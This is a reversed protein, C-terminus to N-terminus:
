ERQGTRLMYSLAATTHTDSSTPPPCTHHPAPFPHPRCSGRALCTDIKLMHLNSCCHKLGILTDVSSRQQAALHWQLWPVHMACCASVVALPLLATGKSVQPACPTILASWDGPVTGRELACARRATGQDTQGGRRVQSGLFRLLWVLCVVMHLFAQCHSVVVAQVGGAALVRV